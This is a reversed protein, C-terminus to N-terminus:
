SENIQLNKYIEKMVEHKIQRQYKQIIQEIKDSQLISSCKKIQINVTLINTSQSIDDNLAKAETSLKLVERNSTTKSMGAISLFSHNTIHKENFYLLKWIFHLLYVYFDM